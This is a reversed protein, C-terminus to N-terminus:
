IKNKTTSQLMEELRKAMYDKVRDKWEEQIEEIAEFIINERLAENVDDPSILYYHSSKLDQQIQDCIINIVRSRLEDIGEAGLLGYLPTKSIENEIYSLRDEREKNM